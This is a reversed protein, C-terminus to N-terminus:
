WDRPRTSGILCTGYHTAEIAQSTFKGHGVDGIVCRDEWRVSFQVTEAEYGVPTRTETVEILEGPVGAAVFAAAYVAGDMSGTAAVQGAVDDFFLKAAADTTTEGYSPPPAPEFNPDNTEVAAPPAKPPVPAPAQIVFSWLIAAVGLTGAVATALALNTRTSM